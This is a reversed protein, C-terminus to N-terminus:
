LPIILKCVKTDIHTINAGTDFVANAKKFIKEKKDWLYVDVCLNRLEYFMKLEIM